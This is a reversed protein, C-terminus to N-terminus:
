SGKARIRMMRDTVDFLDRHLEESRAELRAKEEDVEALQQQLQAQKAELAALEEADRERDTQSM